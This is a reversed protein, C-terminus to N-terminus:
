SLKQVPEGPRDELPPTDHVKKSAKSLKRTWEETKSLKEPAKVVHKKSHVVPSLYDMAILLFSVVSFVLLIGGIIAHTYNVTFNFGQSRTKLPIKCDACGGLEEEDLTCVGDDVCSQAAAFSVLLLVLAFARM